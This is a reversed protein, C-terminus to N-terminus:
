RWSHPSGWVWSAKQGGLHRRSGCQLQSLVAPQQCGPTGARDPGSCPGPAALTGVMITSYALARHRSLPLCLLQSFLTEALLGELKEKVPLGPCCCRDRTWPSPMQPECPSIPACRQASVLKRLAM